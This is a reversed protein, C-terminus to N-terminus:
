VELVEKNVRELLALKDSHHRKHGFDEFAGGIRTDKTWGIRPSHHDKAKQCFKMGHRVELEVDFKLNTGRKRADGCKYRNRLSTYVLTTTKAEQRKPKNYSKKQSSM